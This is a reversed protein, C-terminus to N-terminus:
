RVFEMTRRKYSHNAVRHRESFCDGMILWIRQKLSPKEHVKGDDVPSEYPENARLDLMKVEDFARALGISM